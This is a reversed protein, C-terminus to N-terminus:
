NAPKGAAERAKEREYSEEQSRTAEAQRSWRLVATGDGRKIQEIVSHPAGSKAPRVDLIVEDGPKLTDQTMGGDAMLSEPSALEGTWRVVNGSDDKVNWVVLVHPNRWSYEVVTGKQTVVSQSWLATGHHALVPLNLMPFLVVMALLEAIVQMRRLM